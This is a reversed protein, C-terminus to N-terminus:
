LEIEWINSMEVDEYGETQRYRYLVGAIVGTTVGLKQRIEPYLYGRKRMSIIQEDREPNKTDMM